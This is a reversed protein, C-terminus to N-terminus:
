LAINDSVNLDTYNTLELFTTIFAIIYKQYHFYSM